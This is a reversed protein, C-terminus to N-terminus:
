RMSNLFDPVVKELWYEALQPSTGSVFGVHGGKETLLIKIFSSLQTRKPIFDGPLFPDDKAHILLTPINIFRLYSFSSAQAYYDSANKFGHLPATVIEDFKKLDNAMLVSLLNFHNQEKNIFQRFILYKLRTLLYHQYIKSFGRSLSAQTRELSFPTSIAVAGSLPTKAGLEGLYKLLINAGISFGVAFIKGSANSTLSEIVESIDSTEGAHFMYPSRNQKKSCGRFHIVVTNFEFQNLANVMGRIYPSDVSGGLGHLLIVTDKFGQQSWVLELFDGDSLEFTKFHVPIAVKKRIIEPWITQLHASNLWWAPKFAPFNKM